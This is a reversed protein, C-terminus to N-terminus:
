KDGSLHGWGSARWTWGRGTVKRRFCEKDCEPDGPVCWDTCVCVCVGGHWPRCSPVPDLGSPSGWVIDGLTWPSPELYRIPHPPVQWLVAPRLQPEGLAAVAVEAQSASPAM